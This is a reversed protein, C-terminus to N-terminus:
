LLFLCSFLCFSRVHLSFCVVFVFPVFALQFSPFRQLMLICMQGFAIQPFGNTTDFAQLVEEFTDWSMRRPFVCTSNWTGPEKLCTKDLRKMCFLPSLPQVVLRWSTFCTSGVPNQARWYPEVCVGVRGQFWTMQSIPYNIRSQRRISSIQVQYHLVELAVVSTQRAREPTHSRTRKLSLAPPASPVVRSWWVWQLLVFQFKLKNLWFSSRNAPNRPTSPWCNSPRPSLRHCLQPHLRVGHLWHHGGRWWSRTWCKSPCPGPSESCGGWLRLAVSPREKQYCNFWSVLKISVRCQENEIWM